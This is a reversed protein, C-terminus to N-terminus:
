SLRSQKLHPRIQESKKLSMNVVYNAGNSYHRDKIMVIYM